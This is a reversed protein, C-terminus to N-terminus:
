SNFTCHISMFQYPCGVHCYCRDIAMLGHTHIVAIEGCVVVDCCHVGPIDSWTSSETACMNGCCVHVLDDEKSRILRQAPTAHQNTHKM